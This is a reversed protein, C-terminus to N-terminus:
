APWALLSEDAPAQVCRVQLPALGNQARHTAEPTPPTASGARVARRVAGSLRPRQGARMGGGQTREGKSSRVPEEVIQVPLIVAYKRVTRVTPSGAGQGLRGFERAVSYM